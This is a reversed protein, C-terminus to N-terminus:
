TVHGWARLTERELPEARVPSELGLYRFPPGIEEGQERFYIEIAEREVLDVDRGFIEKLENQMRVLDLLSIRANRSFSVLLDIDSKSRFDNRLASGFLSLESVKWRKCFGVLKKRPIFVRPKARKPTAVAM